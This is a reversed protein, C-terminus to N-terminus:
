EETGDPRYTYILEDFATYAPADLLEDLRAPTQMEPVLAAQTGQTALVGLGREVVGMALRLLTVPYVIMRVGADALQRVTFLASGGLESMDALVPVDVARVVAEFERLDRLGEPFVVDAGAGVLARAREVTGDLGAAARVLTRAVVLFNGDRRADVAARIRHVATAVGVTPACDGQGCRSPHVQDEIHCGALGHDELVQVTRAVNMPEGYGAAADVLTGLDTMRAIQGARHALESLTTLGVDPLGLDAAVVSGSVYVGEFGLEEILRATPANFAGPLRLPQEATALRERLVARKAAPSTRAHLM